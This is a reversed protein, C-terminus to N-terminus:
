DKHLWSQEPLHSAMLPRKHIEHKIIPHKITSSDANVIQPSFVMPTALLMSIVYRKM